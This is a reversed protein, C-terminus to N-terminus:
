LTKSLCYSRIVLALLFGACMVLIYSMGVGDDKVETIQGCGGIRSPKPYLYTLADYDDQTLREQIKGGISYYMLAIPNGSHGIGLAHGSEHALVARLVHDTLSAVHNEGAVLADNILLAGAIQGESNTGITGVGLISADDFMTEDSSCGILITNSPTKELASSLTDSSVDIGSDVNGTTIKMASTPVKNWYEDMSDLTLDLLRQPSLNNNTCSNGAVRISVNNMPFKARSPVLTFAKGANSYSLLVFGIICLLRM